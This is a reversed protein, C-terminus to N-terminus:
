EASENYTRIYVDNDAANLSVGSKNLISFRLSFPYLRVMPFIIVKSSTSTTLSSYYTDGGTKDASDTGDNITVRLMITGGTSPTISGLKIKVMGYLTRNTSNDYTFTNSEEDNALSDLETTCLSSSLTSPTSYKLATM